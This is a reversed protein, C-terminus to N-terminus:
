YVFRQYAKKRWLENATAIANFRRCVVAFKCVDRHDILECTLIYDILEDALALFPCVVGVDEEVAAMQMAAM